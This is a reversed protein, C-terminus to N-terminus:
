EQGVCLPEFCVEDGSIQSGGRGRQRGLEDLVLGIDGLRCQLATPGRGNGRM